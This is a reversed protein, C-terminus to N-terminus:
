NNDKFIMCKSDKLLIMAYNLKVLNTVNQM